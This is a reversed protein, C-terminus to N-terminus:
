FVSGSFTLSGTPDAGQTGNFDFIDKFVKGNTYISFIYGYNYAGGCNMGFLSGGVITLSGLPIQGKACHNYTFDHLDKYGKGTTDMSFICGYSNAGGSFTLDGWPNGGATDNFNHLVTYQANSIGIGLCFLSLYILVKM